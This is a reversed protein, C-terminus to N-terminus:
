WIGWLEAAEAALAGRESVASKKAVGTLGGDGGAEDVGPVEFCLENNVERIKGERYVDVPLRLGSSWSRLKWSDGGDM